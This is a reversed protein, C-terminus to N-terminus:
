AGRGNGRGNHRVLGVTELDREITRVSAGTANSIQALSLGSERLETIVRRRAAVSEALSFRAGARGSELAELRLEFEDLASDTRRALDVLARALDSLADM